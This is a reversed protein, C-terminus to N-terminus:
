RARLKEWAPQVLVTELIGTYAELFRRLEDESRPQLAIRLLQIDQTAEKEIAQRIPILAASLSASRLEAESIDPSMRRLDDAARAQKAAGLDALFELDADAWAIRYYARAIGLMRDHRRDPERRSVEIAFPLFYGLITRRRQAPTPAPGDNLFLAPDVPADPVVRTAVLRAGAGSKGQLTWDLLVGNRRDISLTGFAGSAMAAGEAARITVGERARLMQLWGFPPIPELSFGFRLNRSVTGDEELTLRLDCTICDEPLPPPDAAPVYDRGEGVARAAAMLAGIPVRVLVPRGSDDVTRHSLWGNEVVVTMGPEMRLAFRRGREVALTVAVTSAGEARFEAVLTKWGQSARTCEQELDATAPAPDKPKGDGGAPAPAKGPSGCGACFAAVACALAGPFRFRTPRPDPEPM